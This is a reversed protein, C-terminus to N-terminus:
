FFILANKVLGDVSVLSTRGKLYESVPADQTVFHVRVDPAIGDSGFL